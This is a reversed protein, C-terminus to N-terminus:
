RNSIDHGVQHAGHSEGGGFIHFWRDVLILGVVECLMEYPLIFRESRITARRGAGDESDDGCFKDWAQVPLPSETM